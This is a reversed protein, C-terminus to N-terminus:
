SKIEIFLNSFTKTMNIKNIIIIIIMITIITINYKTSNRHSKTSNKILYMHCSVEYKCFPNATVLDTNDNLNARYLVHTQLAKSKEQNTTVNKSLNLRNKWILKTSTSDNYFRYSKNKSSQM